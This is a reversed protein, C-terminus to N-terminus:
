QKSINKVRKDYFQIVSAQEVKSVLAFLRKVPSSHEKGETWPTEGPTTWIATLLIKMKLSTDPVVLTLGRKECELKNDTWNNTINDVVLFCFQAAPSLVFGDDVPCWDACLFVRNIM